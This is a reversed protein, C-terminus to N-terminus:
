KKVAHVAHVSRTWEGPISFADLMAVSTINTYRYALVTLTNAEVDVQGCSKTTM